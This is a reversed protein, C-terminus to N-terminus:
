GPPVLEFYRDLLTADGLVELREAPIRHWLFLLLDSAPGRVAVSAKAHTRDVIVNNDPEFRVLWEGEGDTRHFHYSEGSGARPNKAWRQRIMPLMVDFVEDIGDRALEADIPETCHHALQVDWRHIATEHAMRRQWFGVTQAPAWWTWVPEDAAASGVVAEFDAASRELLDLLGSPPKMRAVDSEETEFWNKFAPPLDLDEYSRIINEQARVKVLKTRHAYIRTLHTVLTAVTWDPCSPVSAELGQHAAAILKTVDNHFAALYSTNNVFTDEVFV